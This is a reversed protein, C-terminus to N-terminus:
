KVKLPEVDIGDAAVIIMAEGAFEVNFYSSAGANILRIRVTEGPKAELSSETQGNALFADYGVDSLDMPGMRTSSSKLRNKLAPTGNKFVRDWSQVSHKKLAYYDGDKKLNALVQDPNENTWDSLVVVDDRDTKILEGNKPHFVLSGYAGRQEQLGTHSHYWYTGSHTIQYKYTFSSHPAIPKTTLHPVGDQDNPLLVGHWHISTEQNMKNNFTVELIDGVTAEITPGPIQNNVSIADVNKGTFNVSKTDIDFNYKILKAQANNAFVLVSLIILITKKM